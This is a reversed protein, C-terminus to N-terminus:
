FDYRVGLTFSHFDDGGDEYEYKGDTSFHGAIPLVARAYYTRVDDREGREGYYDYKYLSYYTGASLKGKRGRRKLVYTADLGGSRYTSDGTKWYEGTLSLTLSRMLLDAVDFSAYIRSYDRNFSSEDGGDILRRDYYGLDVAYHEGLFKRLKIDFSQFESTTGVIDYYVSEENSHEAEEGFQRFYGTSIEFGSDPFVGAARVRLDRANDNLYRLRAMSSLFRAFRQWIKLSILNDEQSEFGFFDRKDHIYLYDMSLVSNFTPSIDVGAGGISDDGWSYELEEFHVAAGGYATLSVGKLVAADVAVGDFFVPEDRTGAQRGIRVQSIYSVPRNIAVHADYLIGTFSEDRADGIDELPFFDHRNSNGDIDQRATGFFHLEYKRDKPVTADFRLYEFIDNDSYDDGSVHASRVVYKTAISGRLDVDGLMSRSEALNQPSDQEASVAPTTLALFACFVHIMM